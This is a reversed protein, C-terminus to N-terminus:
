VMFQYFLVDIFRNFKYGAEKLMGAYVFGFKEHLKISVNNEDAIRAIITHTCKTEKVYSILYEMLSYGIGRNRFAEDVYISIESSNSYAKRDYLKSLSAWGVVTTNIEAVFIPLVDSHMNFWEIKEEVTQEVIDFTAVTNVIAHNYIKVIYPLDEITARRILM